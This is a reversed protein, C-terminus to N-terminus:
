GGSVMAVIRVEDAGTLPGEMGGRDRVDTGDVYVNLHNRLEGRENFILDAVPLSRLAEVVTEAEVDFRQRGEAQAALVSPVVVRVM